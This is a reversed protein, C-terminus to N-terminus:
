YDNDEEEATQQIRVEAAAAADRKPRPQFTPANADLQPPQQWDCSLELPCLHQLARELNGTGVRLKAARTIGDRGKILETVIGLKWTNRNKKESKIIVVDGVSPYPTQEGGARRHQERLSRIYERTWRNWVAEKCKKVHKARKRLDAEDVHYAKLEPLHNPNITLMSNPTLLPLQVDDEVYSLPRNNLSVEVDIVVVDIVVEELETWRLTRNGVTKYFANKFLGILREFQGGWWPARSLNFQWKISLDALYDNLREDKQM